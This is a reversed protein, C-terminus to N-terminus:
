GELVLSHSNAGLKLLTSIDFNWLSPNGNRFDYYLCVCFMTVNIIIMSISIPAKKVLLKGVTKNYESLNEVGEFEESSYRM